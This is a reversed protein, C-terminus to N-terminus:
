SSGGEDAIRCSAADVNLGAPILSLIEQGYKECTKEGIGEIEKLAAATRPLTKCIEALQANRFILYSPIGEGKAKDNRWTRLDRYLPQLAEPLDKGPDERQNKAGSRPSLNVPEDGVTCVLAIHPKGGHTFFHDRVELVEKGSLAAQLAEEPFGGLAESYQLTIVRVKM